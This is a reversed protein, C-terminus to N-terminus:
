WGEDARARRGRAGLGRTRSRASVRKSLRSLRRRGSGPHGLAASHVAAGGHPLVDALREGKAEAGARVGRGRRGGGGRAEDAALGRTRVARRRRRELASGKAALGGARRRGGGGAARRLGRAAVKAIGAAELAAEARAGLEAAAGVADDREDGVRARALLPRALRDWLLGARARALELARAVRRRHLALHLDEAAETAAEVDGRELRDELVVRVHVQDHLRTAAALEGRADAGRV